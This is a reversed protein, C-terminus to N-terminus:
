HQDQLQLTSTNAPRAPMYQLKHEVHEYMHEEHIDYAHEEYEYYHEGQDSDV